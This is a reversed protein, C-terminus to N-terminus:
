ELDSTADPAPGAELDSTVTPETDTAAVSGNAGATLDITDTVESGDVTENQTLSGNGTAAERAQQDHPAATSTTSCFWPPPPSRASGGPACASGVCPRSPPRSCRTAGSPWRVPPRTCHTSVASM